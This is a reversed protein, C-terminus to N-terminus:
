ADASGGEDGGFSFEFSLTTQDGQSQMWEFHDLNTSRGEPKKSFIVLSPKTVKVENNGAVVLLAGHRSDDDKASNFAWTLFDKDGIKDEEAGQELGQLLYDEDVVVASGYKPKRIVQGPLYRVIRYSIEQDDALVLGQDSTLASPIREDMTQTPTAETAGSAMRFQETPSVSAAIPSGAREPTATIPALSVILLYDTTSASLFLKKELAQKKGKLKPLVDKPDNLKAVEALVAPDLIRYQFANDHNLSSALSTYLRYTLNGVTLGTDSLLKTVFDGQTPSSAPSAAVVPQILTSRRRPAVEPARRITPPTSVPTSTATPHGPLERATVQPAVPNSALTAPPFKPPLVKQIVCEGSRITFEAPQREEGPTIWKGNMTKLVELASLDEANYQQLAERRLRIAQGSNVVSGEQFIIRYKGAGRVMFVEGKGAKEGFISQVLDPISGEDETTDLAEIASTLLDHADAAAAAPSEEVVPSVQGDAIDDLYTEMALIIESKKSAWHNLDVGSLQDEIQSLGPSNILSAVARPISIKDLGAQQWDTLRKFHDLILFLISNAPTNVPPFVEMLTSTLMAPDTLNMQMLTKIAEDSFLYAAKLLYKIHTCLEDVDDLTDSTILKDHRRLIDATAKLSASAQRYSHKTRLIHDEFKVLLTLLDKYTVAQILVILNQKLDQFAKIQKSHNSGKAEESVLLKVREDIAELMPIIHSLPMQSLQRQGELLVFMPSFETKLGWIYSGSEHTITHLQKLIKTACNKIKESVLRLEVKQRTKARILEEAQQEERAIAEDEKQRLVKAIVPSQYDASAADRTDPREILVIDDSGRPRERLFSSINAGDASSTNWAVFSRAQTIQTLTHSLRSKKPLAMASRLAAEYEQRSVIAVNLPNGQNLGDIKEQNIKDADFVRYEHSTSDSVKLSLGRRLQADMILRHKEEPSAPFAEKLALVKAPTEDAGPTTDVTRNFAKLANQSITMYISTDGEPIIPQEGSKSYNLASLDIQGSAIKIQIVDVMRIDGVPPFGGDQDEDVSIGLDEFIEHYLDRSLKLYLFEPGGPLKRSTVGDFVTYRSGYAEFQCLKEDRIIAEDDNAQSAQAARAYRHLVGDVLLFDQDEPNLSEADDKTSTAPRPDLVKRLASLQDTGKEKAIQFMTELNELTLPPCSQNYKFQVEFVTGDRRMAQFKEIFTPSFFMRPAVFDLYSLPYVQKHELDLVYDDGNVKVQVIGSLNFTATDQDFDKIVVGKRVEPGFVRLNEPLYGLTEIMKSAAVVFDRIEALAYTGLPHDAKRAFQLLTYLESISGTFSEGDGLQVTFKPPNPGTTANDFYEFFKRSSFIFGENKTRETRVPYIQKSGLDLVHQGGRDDTVNFASDISFNPKVTRGQDHSYIDFSVDAPLSGLAIQGLESIISNIRSTDMKRSVLQLELQQGYAVLVEIQDLTGVFPTLGEGFDVYFRNSVFPSTSGNAEAQARFDDASPVKSDTSQLCLDLTYSTKSDVSAADSTINPATVEALLRRGTNPDKSLLYSKGTTKDYVVFPTKVDFHLRGEVPLQYFKATGAAKDKKKVLKKDVTTVQIKPFNHDKAKKNSSTVGGLLESTPQKNASDSLDILISGHLMADPYENVKAMGDICGPFEEKVKNFKLETSAAATKLLQEVFKKCSVHYSKKQDGDSEFSTLFSVSQAMIQDPSEKKKSKKVSEASSRAADLSDDSYLIDGQIAVLELGKGKQHTIFFGVKENYCLIYRDSILDELLVPVGYIKMEPYKEKLAFYRRKLPELFNRIVEEQSNLVLKKEVKEAKHSKSKGSAKPEIAASYFSLSVKNEKVVEVGNRHVPGVFIPLAGKPKGVKTSRLNVASDLRAASIKPLKSIVNEYIKKLMECVRIKNKYAITDGVQAPFHM